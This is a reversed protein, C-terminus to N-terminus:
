RRRKRLLWGGLGLLALTAPEPVLFEVKSLGSYDQTFDTFAPSLNFTLSVIDSAGSPYGALNSVLVEAQGNGVLFGSTTATFDIGIVNGSLLVADAADKFEFTGGAFHMGADFTTTLLFGADSISDQTDDDYTITIVLGSDDMLLVGDAATYNTQVGDVGVLDIGAQSVAACLFGAAVLLLLKKM